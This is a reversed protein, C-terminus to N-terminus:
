DKGGGKRRGLLAVAVVTLLGPAFVLLLVLIIFSGIGFLWFLTWPNTLWAFIAGSIDTIHMIPTHPNLAPVESTKFYVTWEGVVFLYVVFKMYASPFKWNHFIGWDYWSLPHFSLLDIRMWYENRFIEPDLTTGQYSLLTDETLVDGGGREYYIGVVEGQAKPILDQSAIIDLDNPKTSGDKNLGTWSVDEALGIYAPAFFVQDPNETFYVFSRPVLKLWLKAGGYDKTTGVLANKVAAEWEPGSLWLNMAWDCKYRYMEFQKYVDVISGNELTKGTEVKYNWVYSKPEMDGQITIPQQSACLDSYGDVALDPDFDMSYGFSMSSPSGSTETNSWWKGDFYVSNFQPELGQTGTLYGPHSTQLGLLSGGTLLVLLLAMLLIVTLPSKQMKNM